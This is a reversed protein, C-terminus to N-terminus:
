LDKGDSVHKRRAFCSMQGRKHFLIAISLVQGRKYYIVPELSPIYKHTIENIFNM